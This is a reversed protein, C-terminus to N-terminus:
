LARHALVHGAGAPVAACLHHSHPDHSSEYRNAPIAILVYRGPPLQKGEPTLETTCVKGTTTLTAFPTPTM